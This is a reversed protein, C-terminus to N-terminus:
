EKDFDSDFLIEGDDALPYLEFPEPEELTLERGELNYGASKLFSEFLELMQSLTAEGSISTSLSAEVVGEPPTYSLYYRGFETM